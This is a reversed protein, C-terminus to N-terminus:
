SLLAELTHPWGIRSLRLLDRARAGYGATRHRQAMACSMAAALGAADATVLWGTLHDRVLGHIGSDGREGILARGAGAARLALEADDAGGTCAVAIAGALHHDFEEDALSRLDLLIREAVGLAAAARRLAKEQGPAAPTGAVLLRVSPDSQALAAILRTDEAERPAAAFVYDGPPAALDRPPTALVPLTSGLVSAISVSAAPSTAWAHRSEAVAERAANRLVSRLRDGAEPPLATEPGLWLSKRAHRLLGARLDLALLHDINWAEFSRVMALQSPLHALPTAAFPIRLIESAHGAGVLQDCLLRARREQPSDAFPTVTCALLVKM